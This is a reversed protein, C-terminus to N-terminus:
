DRVRPSVEWSSKSGAEGGHVQGLMAPSHGVRPLTVPGSSHISRGAQGQVQRMVTIRAQYDPGKNAGAQWGHAQGGSWVPISHGKAPM